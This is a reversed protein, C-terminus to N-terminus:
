IDAVENILTGKSDFRLVTRAFKGGFNRVALDRATLTVGESDERAETIVLARAVRQMDRFLGSQQAMLEYREGARPYFTEGHRRGTVVNFYYTGAGDEKHKLAYFGFPNLASPILIDFDLRGAMRRSIVFRLAFYLALVILYVFSLWAKGTSLWCAYFTGTLALSVADIFFVADLSVRRPSMPAFAAIRFTNMLDLLSHGWLGILAGAYAEWGAGVLYWLAFYIALAYLPALVLSHTIGQHQRLYFRKGGAMLMVDLDPLVQGAVFAAGAVEQGLASAAIYGAGGILAHHAIDM